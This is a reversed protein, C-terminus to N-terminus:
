FMGMRQFFLLYVIGVNWVVFFMEIGIFLAKLLYTNKIKISSKRLYIFNLLSDFIFIPLIFFGVSLITLVLEFTGKSIFLQQRSWMIMLVVIAVSTIVKITTTVLFRKKFIKKDGDEVKYLKPKTVIAKKKLISWLRIEYLTIIQHLFTVVLLIKALDFIWPMLITAISLATFLISLIIITM